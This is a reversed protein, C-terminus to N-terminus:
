RTRQSTRGAVYGEMSPPLELWHHKSREFVSRAAAPYEPDAFAGLAIAVRGPHNDTEWWVNSGCTPCFHFRLRRDEVSRQWETSPGSIRVQDKPYYAGVGFAAGTRRQCELCHCLSIVAPEGEVDVSLAGCSCQAKRIL